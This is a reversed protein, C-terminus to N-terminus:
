QENHLATTKYNWSVVQGNACGSYLASAELDVKCATLSQHTSLYARPTLVAGKTTTHSLDWSTVTNAAHCAVVTSRDEGEKGEGEVHSLGLVPSARPKVLSVQEGSNYLDELGARWFHISGEEDGSAITVAGAGLSGGWGSCVALSHVPSAHGDYTCALNGTELSWVTTTWDQSSCAIHAKTGAYFIEHDTIWSEHGVMTVVPKANKRLDWVLTRGDRASSAFLHDSQELFTIKTVRGTHGRFSLSAGSASSLHDWLTCAGSHTGLLLSDKGSANKRVCVCSHDEEGETSRVSRLTRSDWIEIRTSVFFIRSGEHNFKVLNRRSKCKVVSLPDSLSKCGQHAAPRAYFRVKSDYAASAILDHSSDIAIVPSRPAAAAVQLKPKEEFSAIVFKGMEGFNGKAQPHWRTSGLCADLRSDLKPKSLTSMVKIECAEIDTQTMKEALFQVEPEYWADEFLHSCLLLLDAIIEYGFAPEEVELKHGDEMISSVLDVWFSRNGPFDGLICDFGRHGGEAEIFLSMALVGFALIHDGSHIAKMVVVGLIPMLRRMVDLSRFEIKKGTSEMITFKFVDVIATLHEMSGIGDICQRVISAKTNFLLNGYKEQFYLYVCDFLEEIKEGHAEGSSANKAGTETTVSLGSEYMDAVRESRIAEMQLKSATTVDASPSAPNGPHSLAGGVSKARWPLDLPPQMSQFTVIEVEKGVSKAEFTPSLKGRLAIRTANFEAPDLRAPTDHFFNQFMQTEMFAQLFEANKAGSEKLGEWDSERDFHVRSQDLLDLVTELFLFRFDRGMSQLPRDEELRRRLALIDESFPLGFESGFKCSSSDVDIEVSQDYSLNQTSISSLVGMLYPTPAELYETLGEPVIPIYIHQWKLPQLLECLGEAVRTLKSMSNSRLIVKRELLVSEFLCVLVKPDMSLLDGVDTQSTLSGSVRGLELHVTEGGLPLILHVPSATDLRPVCNVKTVIETLLGYDCELVSRELFCADHIIRVLKEFTRYLPDKSILCLCKTYAFEDDESTRKREEKSLCIDFFTCCYGYTKNGTSDTLIVNYAEYYKKLSMHHFPKRHIGTPLCCVSLQPPLADRAEEPFCKLISARKNFRASANQSAKTTASTDERSRSGMARPFANGKGLVVLAEIWM